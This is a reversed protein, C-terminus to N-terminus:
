NRHLSSLIQCGRLKTIFLFLPDSSEKFPSLTLIKHVIGAPKKQLLLPLHGHNEIKDEPPRMDQETNDPYAHQILEIEYLPLIELFCRGIGFGIRKLLKSGPCQPPEAPTRHKSEQSAQNEQFRCTRRAIHHAVRDDPNASQRTGEHKQVDPKNDPRSLLNHDAQFFAIDGGTCGLSAQCRPRIRQKGAGHQKSHQTGHM